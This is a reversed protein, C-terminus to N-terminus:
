IHVWAPDAALGWWDTVDATVLSGAAPPSSLTITYSFWGDAGVEVEVGQLQAIEGGLRVILGAPSEDSVHGRISYTNPAIGYVQFNDIVPKLSVVDVTAISSALGASDVAKGWETGLSSATLTVSFEGSSSPHIGAGSAVGGLSVVCTTPSEDYVVGSFTVLRQGGYSVQLSIYPAQNGYAPMVNFASVMSDLGEDDHVYLSLHGDGTYPAIFEFSGTTSRSGTIAGSIIVNDAGPSDDVVDGRIILTSAVIRAEINTLSAASPVIREDLQEVQLRPRAVSSNRVRNASASRFMPM